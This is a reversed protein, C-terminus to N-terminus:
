NDIIKKSFIEFINIIILDFNAILLFVLIITCKFLLLCFYTTCFIFKLIYNFINIRM